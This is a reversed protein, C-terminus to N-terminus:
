HFTKYQQDHHGCCGHEQHHRRDSPIKLAQGVAQMELRYRCEDGLLSRDLNQRLFHICQVALDGPHPLLVSVEQSFGICRTNDCSFRIEMRNVTRATTVPAMMTTAWVRRM